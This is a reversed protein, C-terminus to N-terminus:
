QKLIELLDRFTCIDIGRTVSIMIGNKLFIKIDGEMIMNSAGAGIKIPLFAPTNEARIPDLDKRYVWYHFSSFKVKKLACFEKQTLDGSRFESVMNQWYARSKRDVNSHKSM